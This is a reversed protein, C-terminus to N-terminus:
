GKQRSQITQQASDANQTKSSGESEAIWQFSVKTETATAKGVFTNTTNTAARSTSSSDNGSKSEGGDTADSDSSSSSTRDERRRGYYRKIPVEPPPQVEVTPIPKEKPPEAPTAPVGSLTPPILAPTAPLLPVTAITPAAKVPSKSPLKRVTPISKRREPSPSSTSSSSSSQRKATASSSSTSSSSSSSSYRRKRRSYHSSSSSSSRRRRRNRSSRNRRGSSRSSSRSRRSRYPPSNYRRRRSRSRSRSYRRSRGRSRSRSRHVSNTRQYRVPKGVYEVQGGAPAQKSSGMNNMAKLRDLNQKVKEAHTLPRGADLLAGLTSAQDVKGQVGEKINRNFNISIKSHPQLEDEGGFSTIYTIKGSNVPSPSRSEDSNENKDSAEKLTKEEPAAYSPPSFPRRTLKKDRQARRERRSKRGSFMIKEQEEEKALRLADAEDADKTLFSYFDNSKMGYNRGYENLEHAQATDLKSIDISVDMDLESDSSDQEPPAASVTQLTETFNPPAPDSEEYTYGITAGGTKKKVAAKEAEIQANAGFQEELYLQHLYKEESIGLFDNQALIRYREYNAQREDASVEDSEDNKSLQAPIYDLHARGDFRDIMIEQHGQWPMMIAPSDGAAAVSPDLHIKCKRGHLQLFQTPDARIREYFDQRREARKRYDVLMGRIKREQKRAEHWM